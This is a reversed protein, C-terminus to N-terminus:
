QPEDPYRKELFAPWSVQNDLRVYGMGRVGTKVKEIHRLVLEQPIRLKVRFMLKDREKQTEVQKPTFQAEPSVFSVVAPIAFDATALDLTVRAEAGVALRGAERAPLFVEMYVESLDVLTLVKGGNGLVEGPEALRYLVRGQVPSKLVSDDIQTQILQESARAAILSSKLTRLRAQAGRLIAASSDRASQQQDVTQKSIAGSAFLALTRALEQEALKVASERQTIAAEAESIAEEAEAGNARSKSLQVNLEATDMRALVQGVAVREGERALVEAIRGAYKTSIDVQDAEIRGNGAVIGPPLASQSNQRWKWVGVGIGVALILGIAIRSLTRGKM